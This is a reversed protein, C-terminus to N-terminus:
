APRRLAADYRKHCPECRPDYAWENLSYRFGHRSLREDPCDGRYAWQTATGGCDICAYESAKGRARQIRSHMARYEVVRRPKGTTNGYRRFRTGHKRCMGINDSVTECGEVSCPPKPPRPILELSGTRKLRNRHM